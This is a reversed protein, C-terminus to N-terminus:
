DGPSKTAVGTSASLVAQARSAAMRWSTVVLTVGLILSFILSWWFGDKGGDWRRVLAAHPRIYSRLDIRPVPEADPPPEFYWQRPPKWFTREDASVWLRLLRANFRVHNWTPNSQITELRAQNADAAAAHLAGYSYFAGLFSVGFGLVAVALLLARKRWSLRAAELSVVLSMVWPAVSSHLYRPGWVEDSWSTFIAFAGILGGLVLISFILLTRGEGHSPRWLFALLLVPAYIVIGKNPSGILSVINMFYSTVDPVIFGRLYDGSRGRWALERAFGNAMYLPFLIALATAFRTIGDRRNQSNASRVFRHFLLFMVAPALFAGSSKVNMTMGACLSLGITGWWSIKESRGLTLYATLMLFFSQQAELGIYAYPWLMTCFGALLAAVLARLENGTFRRVILFIFLVIFSTLVVPELAVVMQERDLSSGSLPAAILLFPIHMLPSAVGHRPYQIPLPPTHPLTVGLEQLLQRAFVVEEGIYGMGYITAPTLAWYLAFVAVFLLAACRSSEKGSFRTM